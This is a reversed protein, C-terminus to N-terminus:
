TGERTANRHERNPRRSPGPRPPACVVVAANFGRYGRAVVLGVEIRAPVPGNTVLNLRHEPAPDRVNVTPPIVGDRIALLACAVDLVPSAAYMRGTASKPVTVAVTHPGFVAALADSESRDYHPVGYGDAFVVDVEAPAVGADSLAATVARQLTSPRGSGPPPDFTAAYGLIEGYVAANRERASELDEVVLMGAGEAPVYGRARKDFPLYALTPDDVLSLLGPPIQGVLGSPSLSSDVGGALTIAGGNRIIRRAQGLADLGGAQDTVVVSSPGRLGHRISIQGSTAAYFWAISMYASVARPGKRYLNQMERQGFEAGGTANATVVSMRYEDHGSPDLGADALALDSAVMGFQTMLATEVLVRSPLLDAARFDRVEGALKVPYGRPDFRSIREIGLKGALTAQWFNHHGVGTPSVVGIGTVVARARNM